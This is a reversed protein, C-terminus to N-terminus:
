RGLAATRADAPPAQLLTHMLEGLRADVHAEVEADSPGLDPQAAVQSSLGVTVLGGLVLLTLWTKM